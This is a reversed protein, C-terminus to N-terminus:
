FYLFSEAPTTTCVQLGVSLLSVCPFQSNLALRPYMVLDQTLFFFFYFDAFICHYFVFVM